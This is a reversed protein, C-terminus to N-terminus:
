GAQERRDECGPFHDRPVGRDDPATEGNKQCRHHQLAETIAEDIPTAQQKTERSRACEYCKEQNPECPPLSMIATMKSTQGFGSRLRSYRSIAASRLGSRSFSSPNMEM